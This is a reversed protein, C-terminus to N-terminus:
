IIEVPLHLIFTLSFELKAPYKLIAQVTTTRLIDFNVWVINIYKFQYIVFVRKRWVWIIVVNVTIQQSLRFDNKSIVSARTITTRKKLGVVMLEIKLDHAM